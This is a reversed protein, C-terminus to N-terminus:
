RALETTVTAIAESLSSVVHYGRGAFRAAKAGSAILIPLGARDLLPLDTLGDGVAVIRSWPVGYGAAVDVKTRPLTIRREIGVIYADRVIFGNAEIQTFRDALGAARLV